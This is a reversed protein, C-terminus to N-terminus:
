ANLKNFLSSGFKAFAKFSNQCTRSVCAYTCFCGNSSFFPVPEIIVFEASLYGPGDSDRVRDIPINEIVGAPGGPFRLDLRFFLPSSRQVRPPDISQLDEVLGLPIVVEAGLSKV